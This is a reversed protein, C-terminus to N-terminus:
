FLQDADRTSELACGALAVHRCKEFRIEAEVLSQPPNRAVAKQRPDDGQHSDRQQSKQENAISAIVMDVHFYGPLRVHINRFSDARAILFEGALDRLLSELHERILMQIQVLLLLTPLILYSRLTLSLLIECYILNRSPDEAFNSKIGGEDRRSDCVGFQTLVHLKRKM